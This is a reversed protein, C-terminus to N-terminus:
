LPDFVSKSWQQQDAVAAIMLLGVLGQSFGWDLADLGDGTLKSAVLLVYTPFTISM